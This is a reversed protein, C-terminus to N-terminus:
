NEEFTQARNVMTVWFGYHRFTITEYERAGRSLFHQKVVVWNIRM